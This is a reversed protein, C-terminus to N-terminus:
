SLLENEQQCSRLLWELKPRPASVNNRGVLKNPAAPEAQQAALKQRPIRFPVQSMGLNLPPDTATLKAFYWARYSSELVCALPQFFSWTNLRDTFM